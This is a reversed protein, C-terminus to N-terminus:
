NSRLSKVPNQTAARLTQSAITTLSLIIIVISALVIYWISFEIRYPFNALWTTTSYWVLPAGIIFAISIRTLIDKLLLGIIMTTSSGLIKRIGIEKSRRELTFSSLALLGLCSIIVALTAIGAFLQGFQDESRYLSEYEKDIFFYSLPIKSSLTSWKQGINALTAKLQDNSVTLTIFTLPEGFSFVLPRIEKQLSNFHFDRVVGVITGKNKGRVFRKGLAANADTYGLAKVATENLLISQTSDYAFHSSLNRGHTLAIGYQDIFDFDISYYDMQFEHMSGDANELTIGTTHSPRGPVCSSASFQEVGPLSTLENRIYALNSKIDEDFHFDIALKHEKTFGLPKNKMYALQSYVVLTAAILFFSIVFQAVVLTGKFSAKGASVPLGKLTTTVELRSLMYAPYVGSVIAVLLTVLVLLGIYRTYVAAGEIMVKGAFQNFYPVLLFSITLALILAIGSLTISDLLFQYWVQKKTAGLVKRVGIERARKMSLATTLNAFNFGAAILVFAAVLGIFYLNTVNGNTISGSRYSRSKGHLYVDTLPELALTYRSPEQGFHLTTLAALKKEVETPDVNSPLVIYTHLILRKWNNAMDPSWWTDLLTSLSVLMDVRFHTNQPMDAMVGTVTVRTDADLILVKNLPNEDGFYKHALSECLVVSYPQQLARKQNGSVWEFDFVSFLSADAYALKEEYTATQNEETRVMYYDLGLRTISKIEPLLQQIAPAMPASTGRYEMGNATQVDTVLRYTNTAQTNYRDYSVEFGIYVTAFFCVTLGLTLGTLNVLTFAKQNLFYTFSTKFYNRLM